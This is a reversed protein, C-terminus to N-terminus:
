AKRAWLVKFGDKQIIKKSTQFKEGLLWEYDLAQNAVMWLSGGSELLQSAREVFALGLERATRAERHFPPNMVVHDLPSPPMEQTIDMWHYQVATSVDSLAELNLRSAELGRRDLEVVHLQHAGRKAIECSLFGYGSGLDAVRGALKEPLHELLLKSGTDIKEWGYLGACTFYGTTENKHITGARLWEDLPATAAAKPTFAVIRSKQKSEQWLLEPGLKVLRDGGQERATSVVIVGEPRVAKAAAAIRWLLEQWNPCGAVWAWGYSGDTPPTNILTCKERQLDLAAAREPQWFDCPAELAPATLGIAM